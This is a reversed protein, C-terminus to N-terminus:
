TPVAVFIRIKHPLRFKTGFTLFHVTVCDHLTDKISQSQVQSWFLGSQATGHYIKSLKFRCFNLTKFSENNMYYCIVVTETIKMQVCELMLYLLLAIHGHM